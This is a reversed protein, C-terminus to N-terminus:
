SGKKDENVEEKSERDLKKMLRDKYAKELKKKMEKVVNRQLTKRALRIEEEHILEKEDEM